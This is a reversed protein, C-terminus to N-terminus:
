KTYLNNVLWLLHRTAETPLSICASLLTVTENSSKLVYEDTGCFLQSLSIELVECIKEISLVLPTCKKSLIKKISAESLDCSLSIQRISLKKTERLSNLKDIYNM